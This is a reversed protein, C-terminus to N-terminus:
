SIIINNTAFLYCVVYSASQLPLSALVKESCVPAVVCSWDSLSNAVTTRVTVALKQLNYLGM